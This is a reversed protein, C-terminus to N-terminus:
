RSCEPQKTWTRSCRRLVGAQEKDTCYECEDTILKGLKAYLKMFETPEEPLDKALMQGLDEFTDGDSIKSRQIQYVATTDSGLQKVAQELKKLCVLNPDNPANGVMKFGGCPMSLYYDLTKRAALRSKFVVTASNYSHELMIANIKNVHEASIPFFRFCFKHDSRPSGNEGDLLVIRGDVLRTYSNRAKTVPLDELVSKVHLPDAHQINNLQLMTERSRKIEESSDEEPNPLLFSRLVIILRPSIVSFVHFETYCEVTSEGTDPHILVSNPGEHINYANGTLLFENDKASPTCLALYMMQTHAIYMEADDPYVQKRLEEMWKGEPDMKLELMAKINDFWVDIPKQYGKERMYTLLRDRDNESYGEANQHYFRKRQGTGRYRMIFLFKRLMNRDPRTIWVEREGAEFAKRIKQIIQGTRSELRSLQEELYHQNTADELDRYMDVLGFTRSVPTEILEATAGTLNIAHLM